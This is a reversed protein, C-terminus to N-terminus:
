PESGGAAEGAASEGNAPIAGIAADLDKELMTIKGLLMAAENVYAADDHVDTLRAIDDRMPELRDRLAQVDQSAAEPAGALATDIAALREDLQQDVGDRGDRDFIVRVAELDKQDAQQEGVIKSAGSQQQQQHGATGTPTGPQAPVPLKTAEPAPQPKAADDKTETAAIETTGGTATADAAAAPKSSATTAGSSDAAESTATGESAAGQTGGQGKADNTGEAAGPTAASAGEDTALMPTDDTTADSSHSRGCGSGFALLVSMVSVSTKM